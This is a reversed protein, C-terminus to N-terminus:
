TMQRAHQLHQKKLSFENLAQAKQHLLAAVRVLRAIMSCVTQFAFMKRLQSFHVQEQTTQIATYMRAKTAKVLHTQFSRTRQHKLRCYVKMQQM